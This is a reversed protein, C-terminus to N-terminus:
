FAKQLYDNLGGKQASSMYCKATGGRENKHSELSAGLQTLVDPEDIRELLGKLESRLCARLGHRETTPLRSISASLAEIASHISSQANSGGQQTTNSLLDVVLYRMQQEEVLGSVDTAKGAEADSHRVYVTEVASLTKKDRLSHYKMTVTFLPRKSFTETEHSPSAELNLLLHLPQGKQMAPLRFTYSDPVLNMPMDPSPSPLRPLSSTLTVGEQLKVTVEVGVGIKATTAGLFRGFAEDLADTNGKPIYQYDGGGRAAISRLLTHMSEMQATGERAGSFGFTSLVTTESHGALNNEITARIHSEDDPRGDSFLLAQQLRGEGSTLGGLGESLGAVMNTSGAPRLANIDVKLDTLDTGVFDLERDVVASSGFRVIRVRDTPKLWQVLKVLAAIVDPLAGRMSGSTDIMLHFDVGTDGDAEKQDSSSSSNTDDDGTSADTDELVTIVTDITGGSTPLFRRSMDVAIQNTKCREQPEWDVPSPMATPLMDCVSRVSSQTDGGKGWNPFINPLHDWVSWGASKHLSQAQKAANSNL